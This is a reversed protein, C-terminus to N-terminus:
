PLCLKVPVSQSPFVLTEVCATSEPCDGTVVCPTTCIGSAVALGLSTTCLDNACQDAAGIPQGCVEGPAEGAVPDACSFSPEGDTARVLRCVEGGGCDSNRQCSDLSGTLPWCRGDLAYVDDSTLGPTENDSVLSYEVGMCTEGTGCDENTSCRDACTGGAACTSAGRACTDAAPPVCEGRELDCLWGSMLTDCIASALCPIPARVANDRDCAEGARNGSGAGCFGVPGTPSPLVACFTDSGCDDDSTCSPAPVCISLSQDRLVYVAECRWDEATGCDAAAECPATCLGDLCPGQACVAFPEVVDPTRRLDGCTEGGGVAGVPATRCSTFSDGDNDIDFGCVEEGSCDATSDCPTRTGVQPRCLGKTEYYDDEAGSTHNNLRERYGSCVMEPPCDDDNECPGACVEEPWCADEACVAEADRQCLGIGFDCHTGTPCGDGSCVQGFEIDPDCAGGVEIYGAGNDICISVLDGGGNVHVCAGGTDCDGQGSCTAGDVSFCLDMTSSEVPANANCFSGSGCEAGAECIRTCLLSGTIALCAWESPDGCASASACAATCVSGMSATTRRCLGSQCDVDNVCAFGLETKAAAGDNDIEATDTLDSQDTEADNGDRLDSDTLVDLEAALDEPQLDLDQRDEMLDPDRDSVDTETAMDTDEAVEGSMDRAPDEGADLDDTRDTSSLDWPFSSGSDTEGTEDTCAVWAINSLM